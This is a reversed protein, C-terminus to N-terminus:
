LENGGEDKLNFREVIERLRAAEDSLVGSAEATQEASQMNQQTVMSIEEMQQTIEELSRKQTQVSDALQDTITAIAGSEESIQELSGSTEGALAVGNEINHLSIGIMETTNQAAEASKSALNRVEEAVVAFGKGAAGARAAEVSANLALINTQMAIDEIMKSVKSIDNANRSIADMADLLEQMRATGDAITESIAQMRQKTEGTNDSVVDVNRKVNEVEGVLQSVADNQRMSASHLQGSQSELLQATGSLRGTAANLQQMTGNLSAIIHTLSDKIVVFDGRFDSGAEVNLDGRALHALIDEIESLYTNVNGVTNKLSKSLVELEDRSEAVEVESRLDGDALKEIRQTAQGLSLSIKKSLRYVVFLTVLLMVFAVAFIQLIAQYALRMYDNVPVQIALSWRTGRVPSFAVFSREGNIRSTASGTEGSIMRDFVAQESKGADLEYVNYGGGAMQADPHAVIVGDQNIIIAQGSRGVNIAGVVDALADYKYNGVLYLATNGDQKVPMGMSIALQGDMSHPDDVTLNDTEALMSFMPDGALSAEGEGGVLTGELSYLGLSIFEYLQRAEQLAVKRAAEDAEPSTLRPDAALSMTRDALLHLNGEVTKAAERAMPQLSDLLITTTLNTTSYVMIGASALVLVLVALATSGLIKGKISKRRKGQRQPRKAAM